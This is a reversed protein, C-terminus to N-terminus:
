IFASCEASHLSMLSAMEGRPGKPRVKLAQEGAARLGCVEDLIRLMSRRRMVAAHHTRDGDTEGSVKLWSSPM